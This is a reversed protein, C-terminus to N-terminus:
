RRRSMRSNKNFQTLIQFIKIRSLYKMLFHYFFNYNKENIIINILYNM